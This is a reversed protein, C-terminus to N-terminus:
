WQRYEFGKAPDGISGGSDSGFETMAEWSRRFNLEEDAASLAAWPEHQYGHWSLEHGRALIDQRVVDAYPRLSWSEAFYTARVGHRDLLDLM